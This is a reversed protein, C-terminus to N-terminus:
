DKETLYNNRPNLQNKLGNGIAGALKGPPGRAKKMKALFVLAKLEIKSRTLFSARGTKTVCTFVLAKLEM